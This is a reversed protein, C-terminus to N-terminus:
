SLARSPKAHTIHYTGGESNPVPADLRLSAGIIPDQDSERNDDHEDTSDDSGTSSIANTSM